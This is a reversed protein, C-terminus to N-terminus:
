DFSKFSLGLLGGEYNGCSVIYKEGTFVEESQHNAAMYLLAMEWETTDV